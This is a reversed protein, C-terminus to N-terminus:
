SWICGSSIAWCPTLAKSTAVVMLSVRARHITTSAKTVGNKKRWVSAAEVSPGVFRQYWHTGGKMTHNTTAM